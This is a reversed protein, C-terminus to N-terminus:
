DLDGFRSAGRLEENLLRMRPVFDEIYDQFEDDSELAGRRQQLFYYFMSLAEAKIKPDTSYDYDMLRQRLEEDLMRYNASTKEDNTSMSGAHGLEHLLTAEEDGRLFNRPNLSVVGALPDYQGKLTRTLNQNYLSLPRTYSETAVNMGEKALPNREFEKALGSRAVFETDGVLEQQMKMHELVTREKAKTIIDEILGAM